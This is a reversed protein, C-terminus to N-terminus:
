TEPRRGSFFSVGMLRHFSFCDTQGIRASKQTDISQASEHSACANLGSSKLFHESADNQRRCRAVASPLAFSVTRRWSAADCVGM